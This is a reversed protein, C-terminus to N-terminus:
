DEDPMMITIVPEGEDGGHIVMNLNVPKPKRGSGGKPVRLLNFSIISEDRNHKAALIAMWLIDWLRVSEDQNTDEYSWAVCDEFVARTICVPLRFGAEKARETVDVLVGDEIAQQRSYPYIANGFVDNMSM